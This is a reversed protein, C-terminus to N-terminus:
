RVPQRIITKTREPGVRRPDNLYIEHHKGHPTLGRAQIFEHLKAITPAEADYPGVHLLQAARGEAFRELRVRALAPLTKKEILEKRVANILPTTVFPPQAMMLTWHWGEPQPTCETLPRGEMGPAWFQGELALIPYERSDGQRKLHFKTGYTLTFLAQIADQFATSTGPDGRGDIMLYKMAPIKVLVAAGASARYLPKLRDKLSSPKRVRTATAPM